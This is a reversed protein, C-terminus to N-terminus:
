FLLKKIRNIILLNNNEKLNKTSYENLNKAFKDRYKKNGKLEIISEGMKSYSAYPIILGRDNALIEEPGGSKKFALVPINYLGAELIVMGFPEERSSCMFLDIKSFFKQVDKSNPYIEVCKSLNLLEIENKFDQFATSNENGGQWLFKIKEKPYTTNIYKATNLFLDPGKRHIPGGCMGVYFTKKNNYNMKKSIFYSVSNYIVEIKNENVEFQNVLDNKVANSCAIFHDTKEFIIKSDNIKLKDFLKIVYKMEQAITLIPSKLKFVYPFLKSNVLTYNLILDPCYKKFKYKLYFDRLRYLPMIRALFKTVINKSSNLSDLLFINGLKSFEEILEGGTKLFIVLEFRQRRLDKCLELLLKPAGSLSAEHGLVLIKKVKM